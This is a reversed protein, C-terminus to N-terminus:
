LATAGGDVPIAVGTVYAADDSALFAIARAVEEPQGLRRLPVTSDLVAQGAKPDDMMRLMSTEIYGPCVANVRIDPAWEAALQRVLALVGAKSVGYHVAPEKVDAVLAATSSICVVSGSRGSALLPKAFERSVLWTGRLNVSLVEEWEEVGLEVAPRIRYIGAANVLLDISGGLLVSASVVARAVSAADSVDATVTGTVGDTTATRSLTVEDRDLLVVSAGRAMLEKATAAGIGGAGGTVLARRGKV